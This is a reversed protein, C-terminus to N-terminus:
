QEHKTNSFPLFFLVFSLFHVTYVNFSPSRLYTHHKMYIEFSVIYIINQSLYQSTTIYAIPIVVIHYSSSIEQVCLYSHLSARPMGRPPRLLQEKWGASAPMNNRLGGKKTQKLKVSLKCNWQRSYWLQAAKKHVGQSAMTYEHFTLLRTNAKGIWCIDPNESTTYRRLWPREGVFDAPPCHDFIIGQRNLCGLWSAADEPQWRYQEKTM